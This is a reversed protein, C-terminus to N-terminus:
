RDARHIVRQHTGLAVVREDVDARCSFTITRGLVEEVRARVIVTEGLDARGTHHVLIGVGVHRVGTEPAPMLPNTALEFWLAIQPSALVSMGADPHGVAWATDTTGVTFSLSSEAGPQPALAHPEAEGTPSRLLPALRERDWGLARLDAAPLADLAHRVAAQLTRTVLFPNPASV